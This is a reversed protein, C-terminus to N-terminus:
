ADRPSPSTYLLCPQMDVANAITRLSTEAYGNTLFLEAARLLIRDRGGLPKEDPPLTTDLLAM